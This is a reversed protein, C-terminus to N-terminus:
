GRGEGTAPPEVVAPLRSAVAERVRDALERAAHRLDGADRPPAIAQHYIITLRGPRPLVRGPPWSEHGGVITVPLVPVSRACALRFAGLKFRQLRGDLSRGAEPFIMVVQGADLLRVAARTARPDASDIDVPFARLRRILLSLGPIQFLRDWAMYHVARRIPISVLPPDAFTVHNPTVVLPGQAPIHEIGEFRIGWYARASLWVLPRFVNLVPTRM